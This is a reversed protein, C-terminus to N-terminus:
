LRLYSTAPPVHPLDNPGSRIPLCGPRQPNVVGDCRLGPGACDPSALVAADRARSRVAGGSGAAQRGCQAVDCVAFSATRSRGTPQALCQPHRASDGAPRLARLLPRGRDLTTSRERGIPNGTTRSFLGDGTRVAETENFRIWAKLEAIFARHGIQATNGRTVYDLVTEIQPAATLVIAHVGDGQAREGLLRLEMASLTHGDYISRSCQRVPIAEFLPSRVPTSDDFAAEISAAHIRVDTHLGSALAAHVLNETACGLSVFLHHDDPDVVPTRRTLDPLITISREALTFKWPQTNHSSAALTAQRVLDRLRGSDRTGPDAIPRRMEAVADEHSPLEGTSCAEFVPFAASAAMSALFRRRSPTRARRFAETIDDKRM